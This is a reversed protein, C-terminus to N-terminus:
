GAPRELPFLGFRVQCSAQAICWPTCEDHTPLYLILAVARRAVADYGTLALTRLLVDASLDAITTPPLNRKSARSPLAPASLAKRQVPKQQPPMAVSLQQIASSTIAAAALTDLHL